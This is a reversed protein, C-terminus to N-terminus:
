VKHIIIDNTGQVGDFDTIETGSQFELVSASDVVISDGLQFSYPPGGYNTAGTFVDVGAYTSVGRSQIYFGYASAKADIGTIIGAVGLVTDPSVPHCSGVPNQVQSITPPAPCSGNPYQTAHSAGAYCFLMAAGFLAAAYKRMEFGRM